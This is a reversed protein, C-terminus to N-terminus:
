LSSKDNNGEQSPVETDMTVAKKDELTQEVNEAHKASSEKQKVDKNQQVQETPADATDYEDSEDGADPTKSSLVKEEEGGKVSTFTAEVISFVELFKENIDDTTPLNETIELGLTNVAELDLNINQLNPLLYESGIKAFVDSNLSIHGTTTLVGVGIMGIISLFFIIKTCIGASSREVKEAKEVNKIQKVKEVVSDKQIKIRGLDKTESVDEIKNKKPQKKKKRRIDDSM